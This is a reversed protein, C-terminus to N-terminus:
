MKFPSFDVAKDYAETGEARKLIDVLRYTVPLLVVEVGTKFIWGVLIFVVMDGGILIGGFAIIAFLVTDFFGGFLTSGILRLWLKEGGTKVKLKALLYSNIFQGILYAVLSAAVIRPFFGLVAEYSEQSTYEPPYPLYGVITFCSVALIMGAFGLWIARRAYRYGYVETLIDGLVYTLPFLVAGGDLILPGASVLKTAALNSILLCLVFLANIIDYYRFGVATVNKMAEKFKKNYHVSEFSMM